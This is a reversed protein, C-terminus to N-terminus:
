IQPNKLHQRMLLPYRLQLLDNKNLQTTGSILKLVKNIDSSKLYNALAIAEESTLPHDDTGKIIQIHNDIAWWNGPLDCDNTLVCSHCREQRDDNASIRKILVYNGRPILKPKTYENKLLYAPKKCRHSNWTLKISGREWHQSYVVPAWNNTPASPTVFEKLRFDELKGTSICIGWEKASYPQSRLKHLANLEEKDAPVFFYDSDKPIVDLSDVMTDFEPATDPSDCLSIRVKKPQEVGKRFRITVNEQLVNDQRFINSRRKYRVIWDIAGQSKLWKRFPRFYDGSCFSRPVIAVLEGKQKLLMISLVLFVAYLNPTSVLHNKMLKALETSQNLKQYPPNVIAVDLIEKYSGSCIQPAIATFDKQLSIQPKPQCLSAAFLEVEGLCKSFAEHLLDDVEFANLSLPPMESGADHLSKAIVTAGLIGTGAGHDGIVAGGTVTLMSAMQSAINIETFYQSYTVKHNEPIDNSCKRTLDGIKSLVENLAKNSSRKGMSRKLNASTNNQSLM